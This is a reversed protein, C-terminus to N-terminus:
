SENPFNDSMFELMSKTFFKFQIKMDSDISDDVSVIDWIKNYFKTMGIISLPVVMVCPESNKEIIVIGEEISDRMIASIGKRTVETVSYAKIEEAM